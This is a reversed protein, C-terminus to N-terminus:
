LKKNHAAVKWRFWSYTLSWSIQHTSILERDRFVLIQNEKANVYLSDGALYKESNQIIFKLRGDHDKTIFRIKSDMTTNLSDEIALDVRGEQDTFYIEGYGWRQKLSIVTDAKAGFEYRLQRSYWELQRREENDRNKM